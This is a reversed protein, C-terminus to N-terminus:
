QIKKNGVQPVRFRMSAALLKLAKLTTLPMIFSLLAFDLMYYQVFNLKRSSHLM